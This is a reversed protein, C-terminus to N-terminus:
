KNANVGGAQALLNLIAQTDPNHFVKNAMLNGAGKVLSPLTAGVAAGVMPHGVGTMMSLAAGGLGTSVPHNMIANVAEKGRNPKFLAEVEADTAAKSALKEATYRHPNFTPSLVKGAVPGATGQLLGWIISDKMDQKSTDFGKETLKDVVNTGIGLGSQGAIEPILGPMGRAALGKSIAASPAGMSGATGAMKLGEYTMPSEDAFSPKPIFNGLGPIGKAFAMLREPSVALKGMDNIHVTKEEKNKKVPYSDPIKKIDESWWDDANKKSEVVPRSFNRGVESKTNETRPSDEDWWNDAM